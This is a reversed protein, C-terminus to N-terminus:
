KEFFVNFDTVVADFLLPYAEVTQYSVVPFSHQYSTWMDLIFFQKAQSPSQMNPIHAGPFEHVVWDKLSTPPDTFTDFYFSHYSVPAGAWLALDAPDCQEVWGVPCGGFVGTLGTDGTTTAVTGTGPNTAYPVITWDGEFEVRVGLLPDSDDVEGLATATSTWEIFCDCEGLSNLASDFM